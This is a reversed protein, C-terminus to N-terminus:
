SASSITAGVSAFQTSLSTGVLTVASIVVVAILAVILGYEIATAGGDDSLFRNILKSLTGVGISQFCRPNLKSLNISRSSDRHVFSPAARQEHCPLSSSLGGAPTSAATVQWFRLELGSIHADGPGVAGYGYRPSGAREKRRGADWRGPRRPSRRRSAWPFLPSSARAGFLAVADHRFLWHLGGKRRLPVPGLLPPSREKTARYSSMQGSRRARSITPPPSSPLPRTSKSRFM